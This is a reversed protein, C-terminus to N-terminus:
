GTFRALLVPAPIEVAGIECGTEQPRTINRQDRTINASPGACASLPIVNILPSGNQPVRTDTPGGNAGLAGLAPDGGNNVDGPGAGFGCSAANTGGQEFNYGNSTTSGGLACNDVGAQSTTQPLAIVTGFVTLTGDDMSLNAIPLQLPGVDGAPAVPDNADEPDPAGKEGTSKILLCPDGPDTTNQVLTVYNLTIDRGASDAIAGAEV